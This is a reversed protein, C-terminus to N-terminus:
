TRFHFHLQMTMCDVSSDTPNSVFVYILKGLTLKLISTYRVRIRSVDDSFLRRPVHTDVPLIRPFLVPLVLSLQIKSAYFICVRWCNIAVYHELVDHTMYLVRVSCCRVVSYPPVSLCDTISVPHRHCEGGRHRCYNLCHTSSCQLVSSHGWFGM